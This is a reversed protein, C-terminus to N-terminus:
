GTGSEQELPYVPRIDIPVSKLRDLVASVEPRLFRNKEIFTRARGYDGTAEILLLDAALAKVARKMVADDVSFKGDQEVRCAGVDLYRNLQIAVGGGHAEDIGFRISRFMGGVSTAYLSHELSKPLVGGDILYQTNLLGLVDAKCEEVTSYLDKLAKNVTTKEGAVTITGPGLGHSIEHMLTEYFYADFSVRANDRATLAERVIPVWCTEFKANMVNKLMVKKSGKAERVREDNPLNFAATQVGAKADGASYVLQVIKIPSAKGRSFNRHEAALPLAQEMADLHRVIEKQKDSAARDVLCIYSEFAAKFGFLRDEYVEYPGIVAEVDGRLDMWKLDSDFYDDNLLASARAELYAALSRDFAAGAARRLLQAMASLGASYYESYPVAKLGGNGRRIVTFNSEFTERDEPHAKIWANFEEKTMDEPYFSAGLPKIRGTLFPKDNDIRTWPGFMITFFDLADAAEPGGSAKLGALLAPNGEWVQQLFLTDAFQSAKVMLKLAERDGPNIESLDCGLRVPSFKAVEAHITEVSVQKHTMKRGCGSFCILSSLCVLQVLNRM